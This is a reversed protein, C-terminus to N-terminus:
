EWSFEYHRTVVFFQDDLIASLGAIIQFIGVTLMVAAAFATGGRAWGSVREGGREYGSM